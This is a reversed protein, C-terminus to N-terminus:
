NGSPMQPFNDQMWKVQTGGSAALSGAVAPPFIFATLMSGGITAGGLASQSISAPPAGAPAASTAAVTNSGSATAAFSLAGTSLLKYASSTAFGVGSFLASGSATTGSYVDASTLTPAANIVRVAIQSSSPTASRDDTLVVLHQKPSSGNRAYGVHIITYYKNAEFTITTDVFKQSVVNIDAENAKGADYAPDVSFIRIHRAGPAVAQYASIDRFALQGFYPSGNMQDVFKFDTKNTDPVANIYRVSAVPGINNVTPGTDSSCAALAVGAASLLAIRQLRM